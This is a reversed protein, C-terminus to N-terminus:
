SENVVRERCTWSLNVVRERCTWSLNVVFIGAPPDAEIKDAVQERSTWSKNAVRERCIEVWSENTNKRHIM